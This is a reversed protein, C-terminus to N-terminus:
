TKDEQDTHVSLPRVSKGKMYWQWVQREDQAAAGNALIMIIIALCFDVGHRPQQEGPNGSHVDVVDHGYPSSAVWHGTNPAKSSACDLM